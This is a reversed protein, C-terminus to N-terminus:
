TDLANWRLMPDPDPAKDFRHCAARRQHFRHMPCSRGLGLPNHYEPLPIEPLFDFEGLGQCADRSLFSWFGMLPCVIVLCGAGNAAYVITGSDLSMCSSSPGASTFDACKGPQCKPLLCWVLFMFGPTLAVGRLYAVSIPWHREPM